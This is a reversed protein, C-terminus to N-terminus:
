WLFDWVDLIASSGREAKKCLPSPAKKDLPLPASFLPRKLEEMEMERGHSHPFLLSLSCVVKILFVAIEKFCQLLQAAESSMQFRKKEKLNGKAKAFLM